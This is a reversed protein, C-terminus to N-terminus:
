PSLLKVCGHEAIVPRCRRFQALVTAPMELLECARTLILDFEAVGGQLNAFYDSEPIRIPRASDGSCEMRDDDSDVYIMTGEHRRIGNLRVFAEPLFKHLLHLINPFRDTTRRGFESPDATELKVRLCEKRLEVGSPSSPWEKSANEKNV